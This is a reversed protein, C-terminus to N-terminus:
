LINSIYLYFQYDILKAFRPDVLVERELRLNVYSFIHDTHVVYRGLTMRGISKNDTAINKMMEYSIHFGLGSDERLLRFQHSTSFAYAIYKNLTFSIGAGEKQRFYDSDNKRNSFRIQKDRRTNFGRYITIYRNSTCIKTDQKWERVVKRFFKVETSDLKREKLNYNLKEDIYKTCVDYFTSNRLNPTERMLRKLIGQQQIDNSNSSVIAISLFLKKQYEDEFINRNLLNELVKVYSANEVHTKCDRLCAVLYTVKMNWTTDNELKQLDNMDAIVKNVYHIVQVKSLNLRNQKYEEM